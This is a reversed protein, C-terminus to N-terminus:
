LTAGGLSDLSVNTDDVHDVDVKGSLQEIEREFRFIVREFRKRFFLEIVDEGQQEAVDEEVSIFNLGPCDSSEAFLGTVRECGKDLDIDGLNRQAPPDLFQRIPDLFIPEQILISISQNPSQKIRTHRNRFHNPNDHRCCCSTGGILSLLYREKEMKNVYDM